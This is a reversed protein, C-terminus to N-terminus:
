FSRLGKKRYFRVLSRRDWVADGGRLMLINMIGEVRRSRRKAHILRQEQHVLRSSSKKSITPPFLPQPSTVQTAAPRAHTLAPSTAAVSSNPPVPPQPAPTFSTGPRSASNSHTQVQIQCPTLTAPRLQLLSFSSPVPSISTPFSSTTRLQLRPIGLKTISSSPIRSDIGLFGFYLNSGHPQLTPSPLSPSAVLAIYRFATM